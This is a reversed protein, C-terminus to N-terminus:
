KFNIKEKILNNTQKVITNSEIDENIICGTGIVVNDGITVGSLIIVNNAIWCNNGIKIKKSNYGQEKITKGKSNFKHNNDYIKVNEGFLNNNGIQINDLASITCYNNFFTNEGISINATKNEINLSFGKRFNSGKEFNIQNGYILKFFLKKIISIFHYYLKLIFM